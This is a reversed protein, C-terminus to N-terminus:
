EFFRDTDLLEIDCFFALHEPADWIVTASLWNAYKAYQRAWPSTLDSQSLKSNLFMVNVSLCNAYKKCISSSLAFHPPWEAITQLLLAHCKCQNPSLRFLSTVWRAVCIKKITHVCLWLFQPNACMVPMNYSCSAGLFITRETNSHTHQAESFAQVLENMNTSIIKLTLWPHFFPKTCGVYACWTVKGCFLYYLCYWIRFLANDTRIRSLLPVRCVILHCDRDTWRGISSSIYSKWFLACSLTNLNLPRHCSPRSLKWRHHESKSLEVTRHYPQFPNWWERASEQYGFMEITRCVRWLHYKQM